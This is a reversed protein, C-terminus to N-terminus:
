VCSTCSTCDTCICFSCGECPCTCPPCFCASCECTGTCEGNCQSCTQAQAPTPVMMTTIVPLLLSVVGVAGIKRVFERRSTRAQQSTLKVPQELLHAAELQSLSLLVLNEDAADNLEQKLVMTLDEIARNGDCHRWVIASTKNLRHARKREQDFIVVDDGIQEVLLQKQRAIPKLMSGGQPASPHL